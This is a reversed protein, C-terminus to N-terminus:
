KKRKEMEYKLDSLKKKLVPDKTIKTARDLHIKANEIKGTLIYKEAFAYSSYDLKKLKGYNLGLYHWADIPFEDKKVYELLLQISKEQNDRVNSHYLSKALFLAFGKENPLISKSIFFSKIANQFNGSEYYMQGKLEHFYPNKNDKKICQDIYKMAVEIKGVRYNHLAHAYLSDLNISKPYLYDIQEKKLFFGNLKAKALKFRDNLREYKRIKQNELNIKINRIRETSLPHTLFYPNIKRLKENRQIESFINILGQLSFGNRKLLRIATQDALSEQSRSFALMRSTGLHQGGMLIATGANYAGGAIAGVALISSLVNIVSNKEMKKQRKQFHGGIVHGIEHSIVGAVDEVNKSKLLLETTFFFKKDPTVLANIFKQNDLYFTLVDNELQTGRVLIKSIDELLNEIEADRIVNISNAKISSYFFIILFTILIKM